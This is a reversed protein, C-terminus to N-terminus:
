KTGVGEHQLLFAKTAIGGPASFGTLTGKQGVVRHCPVFLALPNAGVAGGVARPHSGVKAALQGYTQTTGHPIALLAQWVKQQYATGGRPRCTALVAAPLPTGHAFYNTLAQKAPHEVETADQEPEGWHLAVIYKSEVEAWLPGLPTQPWTMIDM